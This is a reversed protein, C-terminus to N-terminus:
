RCVVKSLLKKNSIKVMEVMQDAVQARVQAEIAPTVTQIIQQKLQKMEEETLKDGCIQKFLHDTQVAMADNVIDQARQARNAEGTLDYDASGKAPNM